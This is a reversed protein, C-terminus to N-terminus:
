KGKRRLFFLAAACGLLSATATLKLAMRAHRVSPAPFSKGMHAAHIEEGDYSNVGGLRVQLAGAMASEPQGANPSKHNAGDALWTQWASRSQTATFCKASACILLASMRSPVFNAADDLRAAAKGFYFYRENKHGIMSDMTNISKYALAAPVGGAALYFLPAIIGDSLSEALTEIVARSIESEELQETDRGVIRSLQRRATILDGAELALIVQEAEQLLNRTALCTAGLWIQLGVALFRHKREALKLGKSLVFNTTLPLGVALLAGAVLDYEPTSNSSRLLREASTICAGFSRVPHPLYEPDGILCDLLYAAALIGPQM